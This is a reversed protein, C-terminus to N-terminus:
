AEASRLRRRLLVVGWAMRVADMLPAVTSPNPAQEYVVPVEVAQQGERAAWSVIETAILFDPCVLRPLLRQALERRILITGQTDRAKLGLVLRTWLRFGASLARRRRAVVIKSQPHGKSGIAVAPPPDVELYSDLDTFDFPLDAASLILLDGRALEIGRRYAFGMGKQSQSAVVRFADTSHESALREAEDWSADTSGNEILLVEADWSTRFRSALVDVTRHLFAASNHVPLVYSFAAHDAGDSERSV